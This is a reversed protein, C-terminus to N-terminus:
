IRRWPGRRLMKYVWAEADLMGNVKASFFLRGDARLVPIRGLSYRDIAGRRNTAWGLAATEFLQEAAQRATTSALGWPFAFHRCPAGLQDEILGKSRRMEELAEKATARGLDTHGHTHSGVTVLGTLVADRLQSWTLSQGVAAGSGEGVFGTALYLLAPIRYRLLTPVVHDIFDGFGDDVTVVVGGRGDSLSESLTRPTAVRALYAMQEEFAAADLDIERTGVGVRHYLLIVVDGPAIRRHAGLPLVAAKTAKRVFTSVPM